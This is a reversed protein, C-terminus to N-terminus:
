AVQSNTRDAALTYQYLDNAGISFFDVERALADAMLAAAPTEIMIGLKLSAPLKIGTEQLGECIQRYIAQLRRFEELTTLMPFMIHLEIGAALSARLLARLQQRLLEEQLFHVRVGRLGLAP